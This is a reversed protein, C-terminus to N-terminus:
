KELLEAGCPTLVTAPPLAARTNIAERNRREQRYRRVVERRSKELESGGPLGLRQRESEQWLLDQFAQEVTLRGGAAGANAVLMEVESRTITVGGLSGLARCQLGDSKRNGDPESCAPVSMLLLPLLATVGAHAFVVSSSAVGLM